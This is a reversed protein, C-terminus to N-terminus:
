ISVGIIILFIPVVLTVLGFLLYDAKTLPVGQADARLIEECRAELEPLLQKSM